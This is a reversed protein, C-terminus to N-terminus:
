CQYEKKFLKQRVPEFGLALIHVEKQKFKLYPNEIVKEIENEYFERSKEPHTEKLVSTIEKALLTRIYPDLKRYSQKVKESGSDERCQDYYLNVFADFDERRKTNLDEEKDFFWSFINYKIWTWARQLFAKLNKTIQSWSQAKVSVLSDSKTPISVAPSSKV